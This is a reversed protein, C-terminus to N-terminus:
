MVCLISSSASIASSTEIKRSPFYMPVCSALVTVRSSMMRMITPRSSVCINGFSSAFIPSATRETRPKPRPFTKRSTENSKLDPSIRPTAPRTPEPREFMASVRNPTVGALAPVIEM